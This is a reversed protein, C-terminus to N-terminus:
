ISSQAYTLGLSGIGGEGKDGWTVMFEIELDTLRNRNQLYIQIRKKLIGCILLIM